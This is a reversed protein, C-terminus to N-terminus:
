LVSMWPHLVGTPKAVSKLRPTIAKVKNAFGFQTYLAALGYVAVPDQGQKRLVEKFTQGAAELANMYMLSVGVWSKASIAKPDLEYVREFILRAMAYDQTKLYAQALDMLTKTDKPEDFLKERLKAADAPAAEGAKALIKEELSEDILETGNSACGKVFNTFVEAKEASEVCTKFFGRAKNRYQNAQGAVLQKYQAVQAENLGAPISAGQVFQAFEEQARGLEYLAAITWRGNGYSIVQNMQATMKALLASKQKVLEGEDGGTGLKVRQYAYLDLGALLYLAHAAMTKDEFTTAPNKSAQQLFDRAQDLLGQRYFALGMWYQSKLTAAPKSSLVQSVATWDQALVLPRAIEEASAKLERLDDSAERFDGMGERMLAANKMLSPSAPDAPYKRAFIEFYKSARRYDATDLAKQGMVGVVEKAYKSDAHKNLLTEGPEYMQPDKKKRFSVFAEYLAQDGLATGQYKSAFNVLKRAYERSRPDGGSDQVKRFEAQRIIETVDRKFSLDTLRSNAILERGAKILNDYDERQNYSDLILQGASTAEKHTPYKQIFQKFNAIATDFDREDYYTRGINFQIMPNAPDQPYSKMYLAGVDRFGHRAEALDIKSFKEPEKLALAFAQIASDQYDKKSGKFPQKSVAEYYVGARAYQKLAFHSEALNLLIASTYRNQSFVGAYVELSEIAMKYDNEKRTTRAKKQVRTVIDRLYIEFNKEVKGLEAAPMTASGRALVLTDGLPEALVELPWERKSKRLAQYLSDFAAIRDELNHTIEILRLYVPIADDVKEKVMLRKGLRSLVKLLSVRDPVLREFYRLAHARDPSLVNQESYPWVLALLADRRIDTKKYIEPLGETSIKADITVVSEFAILAPEFEGTGVYCWGLKYRALPIFPNQPREIIKQYYEKALTPKKQQDLFFDGIQLMSEEWYESKPFDRTLRTAVKVMDENNGLERYEHAMFFLAKDVNPHRPFNETFRQYTEIAQRKVKTADTFDLEEISKKPNEARNIAYLYRSKETYLEALVFYLDPVFSVDKVEKMKARTIEISKEVKAMESKLEPLKKEPVQASLALSWTLLLGVFFPKM